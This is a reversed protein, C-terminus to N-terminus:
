FFFFFFLDIPKKLGPLSMKCQMKLFTKAFWKVSKAIKRNNSSCSRWVM